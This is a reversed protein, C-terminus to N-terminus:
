LFAGNPLYPSFPGTDGGLFVGGGEVRLELGADLCVPVAWAQRATIFEVAIWGGARALVARLVDAAGAEDLGALLRLAGDRIVAFGRGEAILLDAGMELLTRIDQGHAAGRVHRSVADVFELDDEAGAHLGPPEAVGRPTGVAM